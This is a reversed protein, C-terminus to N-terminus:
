LLNQLLTIFFISNNGLSKHFNELFPMLIHDHWLHAEEENKFEVSVAVSLGHDEDPKEGGIEVLMKVSVGAAPSEPNVVKPILDNKLYNLLEAEKAPEVVFTINYTYM